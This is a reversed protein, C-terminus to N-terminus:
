GTPWEVWPQLAMGPHRDGGQPQLSRAVMRAEGAGAAVEGEAVRAHDAAAAEHLPLGRQDIRGDRAQAAVRLGAMLLPALTGLAIAVIEAGDVVPASFGECRRVLWRLDACPKV